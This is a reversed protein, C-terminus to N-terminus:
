LGKRKPHTLIVVERDTAAKRIQDTARKARTLLLPTSTRMEESSLSEIDISPNSTTQPQRGPKRAQGPPSNRHPRVRGEQQPFVRDVVVFKQTGEEDPSPDDGLDLDDLVFTSIESPPPPPAIPEVARPGQMAGRPARAYLLTLIKQIRNLDPYQSLLRQCLTIASMIQGEAAYGGVVGEYHIMAEDIRGLRLQIAAVRLRAPISRPEDRLRELYLKLDRMLEDRSKGAIWHDANALVPIRSDSKKMDM